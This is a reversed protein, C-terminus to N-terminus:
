RVVVSQTQTKGLVQWFTDALSPFAPISIGATITYNGPKVGSLDWQVTPGDGIINGGTVSYLYEHPSVFEPASVEVTIKPNDSCGTGSSVCNSSVESHSLNLSIVDILHPYDTKKPEFIERGTLIPNPNLHYASGKSGVAWISNRDQGAISNLNEKTLGKWLLRRDYSIDSGTPGVALITRRDAYIIGSRYGIATSGLHWNAGGDQTLAFTKNRDDPKEYNGGVIVGNKHDFMAISFIGSGPTGHTIPTDAVTWTLGRDTSRFVRANTGGSVIFANEKGQTILCTGSAAFAAEGNAAAPMKSTDISKWNAGGDTTNILVFRNDVPDSMAICNNPDWCAMADFFAKENTNEFQLEWAKGGNVTKYIRSSDGNGISLIYATNADFAEIDRFDLKEAGPVTIVDWKEGGDTTRIVTGGTGSAWVVKENVVSLGRLSSTTNVSQKIWQAHIGISLFCFFIGIPVNRFRKM